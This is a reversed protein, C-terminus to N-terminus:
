AYSNRSAKHANVAPQARDRAHQVVADRIKVIAEWEENNWRRGGAYWRDVNDLIEDFLADAQYRWKAVRVRPDERSHRMGFIRFELEYMERLMQSVRRVDNAQRESAVSDYYGPVPMQSVRRTANDRDRAKAQQFDAVPDYKPPPPNYSKSVEKEVSKVVPKPASKTMKAILKGFSMAAVISILFSIFFSLYVIDSHAPGVTKGSVGEILIYCDPSSQLDSWFEPISCLSTSTNISSVPGNSVSVESLDDSDSIINYCDEFLSWVPLTNNTNEIDRRYGTSALINAPFSNLGWRETTICLAALPTFQSTNVFHWEEM